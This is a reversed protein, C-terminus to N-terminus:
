IYFKKQLLIFLNIFIKYYFEQLLIRIIFIKFYIKIKVINKSFIILIYFNFIYVM